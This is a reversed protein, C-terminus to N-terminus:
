EAAAPAEAEAGEPGEAEAGASRRSL